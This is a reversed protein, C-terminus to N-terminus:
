YFKEVGNWELRGTFEKSNQDGFDENTVIIWQCWLGPQTSASTNYNLISDDKDQGFNNSHIALYEGEVGLEGDFCLESWNPYIEKIKENDRRMRRTNSFRNIYEVFERTMKGEIEFHNEFYTTYGM